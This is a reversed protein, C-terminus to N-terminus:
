TTGFLARKWVIAKKRLEFEQELQGHKVLDLVKGAEDLSDFKGANELHFLIYQNVLGLLQFFCTNLEPSHNMHHVMQNRNARLHELILKVMSENSYIACVRKVLLDHQMQKGDGCSTLQELITWLNLFSQDRNPTDLCNGYDTIIRAFSEGFKLKRLQKRITKENRKLREWVADTISTAKGFSGDTSVFPPQYSFSQGVQKYEEDHVTQIPGLRIKNVPLEVPSSSTHIVSRNLEFNWIGRLSNLSSLGHALAEQPTRAQVKVRVYSWKRIALPLGLKEALRLFQGYDIKKPASRHFSFSTGKWSRRTVFKCINDVSVQSLLVFSKMSTALYEREKVNISELLDEAKFEGSESPEIAFVAKTVIQQKGCNAISSDFEFITPLIAWVDEMSFPSGSVTTSFGWTGDSKRIRLENLATAIADLSHTGFKKQYKKVLEAM